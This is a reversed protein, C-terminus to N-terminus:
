PDPVMDVALEYAGSATPSTPSVVIEHRGPALALTISATAAHTRRTAATCGLPVGDSGRARPDCDRTEVQEHTAIADDNLTRDDHSWSFGLTASFHTRLRITARSARGVLLTYIRPQTASDSRGVGPVVRGSVVRGPEIAGMEEGRLYAPDPSDLRMALEFTGASPGRGGANAPGDVTAYYVGRPLNLDIQPATGHAPQCALVSGHPGVSTSLYVVANFHARLSLRVRADQPVVVPVIQEPGGHGGCSSESRDVAQGPPLWTSGRLVPAAATLPSMPALTARLTPPSRAESAEGALVVYRGPELFAAVHGSISCTIEGAPDGLDRRVSVVPREGIATAEFWSPSDVQLVYPQGLQGNANCRSPYRVGDSRQANPPTTTTVGPVLQPLAAAPMPRLNPWFYVEPPEGPVVDRAVVWLYDGAALALAPTQYEWDHADADHPLVEQVVVGDESRERLPRVISFTSARADRHITFSVLGDSPVHLRFGHELVHVHPVANWTPHVRYWGVEHLDLSV